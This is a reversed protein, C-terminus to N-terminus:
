VSPLNWAERSIAHAGFYVADLINDAVPADRFESGAIIQAAYQHKLARKVTSARLLKVPGHEGLANVLAGITLYLKDLSGRMSRGQKGENDGYNGSTAPWEILTLTGATGAPYVTRLNSVVRAIERLRAPLNDKPSTVVHATEVLSLVGFETYFVAVGTGSIGPDVAFVWRPRPMNMVPAAAKGKKGRRATTTM